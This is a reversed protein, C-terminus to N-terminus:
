LEYLHSYEKKLKSVMLSVAKDRRPNDAFPDPEPQLQLLGDVDNIAVERIILDVDESLMTPKETLQKYAATASEPLAMSKDLLWKATAVDGAKCAVTIAELAYTTADLMKDQWSSLLAATIANSQKNFELVFAPNHLRWDNVTQRSVGAIKAATSDSSGKLLEAMAMKQQHTLDGTKSTKAM